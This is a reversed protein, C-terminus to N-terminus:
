ARACPAVARPPRREGGVRQDVVLVGLRVGPLVGERDLLVHRAQDPQVAAVGPEQLLEVGHQGGVRREVRVEGVDGAHDALVRVAVLLAVVDGVQGGVRARGPLRLFQDPLHHRGEVVVRRRALAAVVVAALHGGPVDEAGQAEEGGVGRGAVVDQAAREHAAGDQM